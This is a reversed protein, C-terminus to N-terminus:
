AIYINLLISNKVNEIARCTKAGILNIHIFTMDRKDFFLKRCLRTGIERLVNHM